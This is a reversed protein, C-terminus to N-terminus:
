PVMAFIRSSTNAWTIDVDAGSTTVPFNTLDASDIYLLLASTGAVGTDKWVVIANCTEGPTVAPFNVDAADFVGGAVSKSSLTATAVVNASLDSYFDDSAFNPAYASKLLSVKITDGVFDVNGQLVQEAGKAYFRKTM